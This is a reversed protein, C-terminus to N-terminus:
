RIYSRHIRMKLNALLTINKKTNWSFAAFLSFLVLFVLFLKFIGLLRMAALWSCFTTKILLDNACVCAHVPANVWARVRMCQM